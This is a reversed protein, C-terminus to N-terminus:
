THDSTKKVFGMGQREREASVEREHFLKDDILDQVRRECFRCIYKQYYNSWVLESEETNADILNTSLDDGTDSSPEINHGIPCRGYLKDPFEKISM